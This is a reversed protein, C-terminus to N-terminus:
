RRFRTWVKLSETCPRRKGGREEEEEVSSGEGRGESIVFHATRQGEERWEYEGARPIRQSSAAGRSLVRLFPAVEGKEEGKRRLATEYGSNPDNQFCRISGKCSNEGLLVISRNRKKGAANGKEEGRGSLPLVLSLFLNSTCTYLELHKPYVLRYSPFTERAFYPSDTRFSHLLERGRVYRYRSHPLVLVDGALKDRVFSGGKQQSM